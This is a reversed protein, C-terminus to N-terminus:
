EEDSLSYDLSYRRPLAILRELHRFGWGSMNARIYRAVVGTVEVPIPQTWLGVLIRTNSSSLTPPPDNIVYCLSV